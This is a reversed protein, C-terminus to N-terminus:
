KWAGWGLKYKRWVKHADYAEWSNLHALQLFYIDEIEEEKVEQVNEVRIHYRKLKHRSGLESLVREVVEEPKTGRRVVEFAQWRPNKDHSVLMYGRIKFFKVDSM